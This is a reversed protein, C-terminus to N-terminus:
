LQSFLGIRHSWSIRLERSKTQEVKLEISNLWKPEVQILIKGTVSHLKFHCYKVKKMLKSHKAVYCGASLGLPWQVLSMCLYVLETVCIYVYTSMSRCVWVLWLTFYPQRSGWVPNTANNNTPIANLLKNNPLFLLTQPQFNFFCMYFLFVFCFCIYEHICTFDSVWVYLFM